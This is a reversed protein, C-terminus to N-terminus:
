NRKYTTRFIQSIISTKRESNLAWQDVLTALMEDFDDSELCKARVLDRDASIHWEELVTEFVKILPGPNIAM